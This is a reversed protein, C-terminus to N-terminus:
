AAKRKELREHFAEFYRKVMENFEDSEPYAFQDELAPKLLSSTVGKIRQLYMEGCRAFIETPRLYYKLNYKGSGSLAKDLEKDKRLRKMLLERYERCIPHFEYKSSIGGLQDDLLHYYEHIFSDPSHIDVCMCNLQPFYVGLARHKGLKRLRIACNHNAAGSFLRENLEVFEDAVARAAKIDVDEDYEVYGFYRNFRSQEMEKQMVKPINKKTIYATAVSKRLMREYAEQDTYEEYEEHLILYLRCLLDRVAYSCNLSAGDQGCKPNECRRFICEAPLKQKECLCRLFLYQMRIHLMEDGLVLDMDMERSNGYKRYTLTSYDMEYGHTLLYQVFVEDTLDGVRYDYLFLESVLEEALRFIKGDKDGCQEWLAEQLRGIVTVAALADYLMDVYSSDEPHWNYHWFGRRAKGKGGVPCFRVMEEGNGQVTLKVATYAGKNRCLSYGPDYETDREPVITIDDAYIGLVKRLEPLILSVFKEETEASAVIQKLERETKELACSFYHSKEKGRTSIHFINMKKQTYCLLPNKRLKKRALDEIRVGRELYNHNRLRAQREEAEDSPFILELFGHLDMDMQAKLKERMTGEKKTKM